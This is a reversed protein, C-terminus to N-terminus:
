ENCKTAINNLQYAESYFFYNFDAEMRFELSKLNAMM